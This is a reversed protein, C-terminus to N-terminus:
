ASVRRRTRGIWLLIGAVAVIAVIGLAALASRAVAPDPPTVPPLVVPRAAVDVRETAAQPALTSVAAYPDVVGPMGEGPVPSPEATALLRDVVDAPTLAPHYGRVLAVAGAVHAAAVASGGVSYHNVGVPGPAVAGVSPALLDVDGAPVAETRTGSQDIGGVALVEPYAAPYWKPPPAGAVGDDSDNVPAVVVAGNAVATRVASRLVGANETVGTGVLIVDAGRQSAERVGAALSGATMRRQEDIIRIPLIGAAPAIGLVGTSTVPRGAAIAALATGRGLCDSDARGGAVVDSGAAVAGTLGSATRSVGSDVIAITVGEGRGLSWATMPFVRATAWPIATYLVASAGVCSGSPSPLSPPDEAAVAPGALPLTVALSAAAVVSV